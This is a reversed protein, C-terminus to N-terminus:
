AIIKPTFKEKRSTRHGFYPAATIDPNGYSIIIYLALDHM